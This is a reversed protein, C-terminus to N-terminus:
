EALLHAVEKDLDIDPLGEIEQSVRGQKDILYFHPIGEIHLGQPAPRIDSALVVPYTMGLEKQAVPVLAKTDAEDLSIGFVELGKAHYKKYLAEVEPISRRCPDCWTAWFDVLVVKGKFSSLKVAPKNKELPLEIEVMPLRRSPAASAPPAGSEASAAQATQPPAVVPAPPSQSGCIAITLVLATLAGLAIWRKLDLM